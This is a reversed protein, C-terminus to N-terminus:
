YYAAQICHGSSFVSQVKNSRIIGRSFSYGRARLEKDIRECLSAEGWREADDVVIVFGAPNLRELLQLCGHRSYQFKKSWAPPGDVLLFDIKLERQLNNFDYGHYSLPGDNYKMLPFVRVEHNVKSGIIKAWKQDHEITIIDAHLIGHTKMANFLLSSQGAGLELVSQFKNERCARLIFYLLSYNAAPGVPYYVNELQCRELDREFIRQYVAELTPRTQFAPPTKQMRMLYASHIKTAAPRVVKKM